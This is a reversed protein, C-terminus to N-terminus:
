RIVIQGNKMKNYIWKQIIPRILNRPGNFLLLLGTIDTIFGPMILMIGGFLICASDILADGPTEMAAMRTKLDTWAKMGQWKALYAGGIGTILIIAITPLLGLTKGSFFLIALEATPIAIFALVIWKM